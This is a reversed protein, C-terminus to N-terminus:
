IINDHYITHNPLFPPLIDFMGFNINKWQYKGDLMEIIEKFNIHM